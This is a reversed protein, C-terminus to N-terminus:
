WKNMKFWITWEITKMTSTIKYELVGQSHAGQWVLVKGKNKRRTQWNNSWEKLQSHLHKMTQNMENDVGMIWLTEEINEELAEM